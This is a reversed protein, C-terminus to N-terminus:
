AALWHMSGGAHVAEWVKAVLWQLSNQACGCSSVCGGGGVQQGQQQLLEWDLYSVRVVVYGRAQLARSRLQAEGRLVFAGNDLEPGTLVFHSPGDAEVALRCVTGLEQADGEVTGPQQKVATGQQQSLEVGQSCEGRGASGNGAARPSHAEGAATALAQMDVLDAGIDISFCGDATLQELQVNAVGPLAAVAAALDEQWRSTTVQQVQSVWAAECVALQEASFAPLLGSSSDYEQRSTSDSSSSGRDKTYRDGGRGASDIRSDGSSSASSSGQSSDQLWMHVQWLQRLSNSDIDGFVAAASSSNTSPGLTSSSGGDNSSSDSVAAQQERSSIGWCPQRPKGQHQRAIHAVWRQCLM